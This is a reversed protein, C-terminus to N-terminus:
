LSGLHWWESSAPSASWPWLLYLWECCDWL